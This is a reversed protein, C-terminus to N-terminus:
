MGILKRADASLIDISVCFYSDEQYVVEVQSVAGIEEKLKEPIMVVLKAGIKDILKKDTILKNALSGLAAGLLRFNKLKSEVKSRVMESKNMLFINIYFKVSDENVNDSGIQKRQIDKKKKKNYKNLMMFAYVSFAAGISFYLSRDLFKSLYELITPM